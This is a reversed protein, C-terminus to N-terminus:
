SGFRLARSVEPLWLSSFEPVLDAKKGTTVDTVMYLKYLVPRFAYKARVTSHDPAVWGDGADWAWYVMLRKPTPEGPNLCEMRWFKTQTEGASLTVVQPEGVPTYGLGRFCVDPTHVAIPGPLGAVLLVTVAHGSRGQEYVRSVNARIGARELDGPEFPNEQATWNGLTAPIAALSEQIRDFGAPPQWRHTQVGHVLGSGIILALFGAASLSKM